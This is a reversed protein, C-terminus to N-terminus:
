FAGSAEEGTNTKEWKWDGIGYSSKFLVPLSQGYVFEYQM